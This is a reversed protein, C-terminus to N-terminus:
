RISLRRHSHWYRERNMPKLDGSVLRNGSLVGLSIPGQVGATAQIAYLDFAPQRKRPSLSYSAQHLASPYLYERFNHERCPHYFTTFGSIVCLGEKNKYRASFCSCNSSIPKTRNTSNSFIRCASSPKLTSRWM